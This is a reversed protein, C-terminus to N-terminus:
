SKVTAEDVIDMEVRMINVRRFETDQQFELYGKGLENDFYFVGIYSFGDSIM